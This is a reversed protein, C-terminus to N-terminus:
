FMLFNNLSLSTFTPDYDPFIGTTRLGSTWTTPLYLTSRFTALNWVIKATTTFKQCGQSKGPCNKNQIQTSILRRHTSNPQIHPHDMQRIDMGLRFLSRYRHTRRWLYPMFHYNEWRFTTDYALSVLPSSLGPFLLTWIWGPVLGTWPLPASKSFLLSGVHCRLSAFRGGM